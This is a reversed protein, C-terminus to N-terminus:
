KVYYSGILSLNLVSNFTELVCFGWFLRWPWSLLEPLFSRESSTGRTQTHEPAGQGATQVQLISNELVPTPRPVPKMTSRLKSRIEFTELKMHMGLYVLVM